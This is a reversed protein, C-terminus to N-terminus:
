SFLMRGLRIQTAGSKIAIKYDNSMGMSLINFEKGMYKKSSDFLQKTVQFAKKTLEEDKSTPGMSMLGRCCINKLQKIQKLLKEAEEIKVGHKTCERTANVQVLIEVYDKVIKQSEKNIISALDYSDVTEIMDFIKLARKVKNKQLPGILHWEVKGKIFPKKKEAEQIYNEGILTIGQKIVANIQGTSRGKTAALISVKKPFKEIIIVM